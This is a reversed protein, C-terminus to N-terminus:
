CVSLRDEMNISHCGQEASEYIKLVTKLSLLAKDIDMQLVENKGVARLFDHIVKGHGPGYYAPKFEESFQNDSKEDFPPDFGTVDWVRTRESDLVIRGKSGLIEIIGMWEINTSNSAQILIEMGNEYELRANAVDEVELYERTRWIRGTM